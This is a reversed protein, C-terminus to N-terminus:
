EIGAEYKIAEDKIAMRGLREVRSGWGRESKFGRGPVM